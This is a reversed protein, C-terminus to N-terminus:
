LWNGILVFPSWLGPHRGSGSRVMELQAGQLAKAKSIAPDQLREYFGIVLNAAAKDEVQWLSALVSRAGAKVGVGALGLAAREDGAATECASLGLLEVPEERFESYKVFEELEEMTLQGDYTLLFSKDPDRDFRGHTALHVVTYPQRDLEEGLRKEVFDKDQLPPQEAGFIERIRAIEDQVQPLADFHSPTGEIPQELDVEVAVGGLLLDFQRHSIPRPDLLRLGPTV